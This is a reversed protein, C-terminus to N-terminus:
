NMLLQKNTKILQLITKVRCMDGIDLKSYIMNYIEIIDARPDEAVSKYVIDQIYMEEPKLIEDNM